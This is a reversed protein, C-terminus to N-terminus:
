LPEGFYNSPDAEIHAAIESFSVGRDNLGALGVGSKFASGTNTRLGLAAIVYSPAFFHDGDYSKINHRPDVTIETRSTQFLEAAVGLCCYRNDICLRDRGQEYEGSRLADLWRQQNPGLQQKETM